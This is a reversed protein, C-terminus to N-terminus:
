CRRAKREKSKAVELSLEQIINDLPNYIKKSEYEFNLLRSNNYIDTLQYQSLFLFEDGGIRFTLGRYKSELSWLFQAVSTIRKSGELFGHDKNTEHLGNIDVYTAFCYPSYDFSQLKRLNYVGTLPDINAQNEASILRSKLDIIEKELKLVHNRSFM